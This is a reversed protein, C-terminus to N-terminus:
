ADKYIIKRVIKKRPVNKSSSSPPPTIPIPPSAPTKKKKNKKKKPQTTRPPTPPPLPPSSTPPAPSPRPPPPDEERLAALVAEHTSRHGVGHVFNLRVTKILDAVQKDTFPFPNGGAKLVFKESPTEEEVEAGDDMEEMPLFCVDENWDGENLAKDM